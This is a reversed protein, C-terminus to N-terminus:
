RLLPVGLRLALQEAFKKAHEEAWANIGLTRFLKDTPILDKGLIEALRGGGVRRLLEMQFLRDQAHVYGLAFYADEESKAYIHPVGYKDYYVEVEGKLGQLTVAGEYAPKTSQIYLYGGLATVAVLLILVFVIRKLIKM